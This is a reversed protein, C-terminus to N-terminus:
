FRYSGVLAAGYVVCPFASEGPPNQIRALRWLRGIAEWESRTNTLALSRSGSAGFGCWDQARVLSGHQVPVHELERAQPYSFGASARITVAPAAVPQLFTALCTAGITAGVERQRLCRAVFYGAGRRLARRTESLGGDPRREEKREPDNAASERAQLANIQWCIV